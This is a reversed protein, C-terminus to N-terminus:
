GRVGYPPNQVTFGILNQHRPEERTQYKQLLFIQFFIQKKMKKINDPDRPPAGPIEFYGYYPGREDGRLFILVGAIGPHPTKKGTPGRKSSITSITYPTPANRPFAHGPRLVKRLCQLPAPPNQPASIADPAPSRGTTYPAPINQPPKRHM